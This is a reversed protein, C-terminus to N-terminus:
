MKWGVSLRLATAVRRTSEVGPPIIRATTVQRRAVPISGFAGVSGGSQSYSPKDYAAKSIRLVPPVVSSDSKARVIAGTIIRFCPFLPHKVMRWCGLRRSLGWKRRWWSRHWGGCRCCRRWPSSRPFLFVLTCRIRHEGSLLGGCRCLCSKTLAFVLAWVWSHYLPDCVQEAFRLFEHLLLPFVRM